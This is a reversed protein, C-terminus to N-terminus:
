HERVVELFEAIVRTVATPAELQPIHGAGAITTM